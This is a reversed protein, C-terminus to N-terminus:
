IHILSLNENIAKEKNFPPFDDCLKEIFDEQLFNDIVVHKFPKANEFDNNINEIKSIVEKSIM